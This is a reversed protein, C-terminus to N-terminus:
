TSKRKHAHTDTHPVEGVLTDLLTERNNVSCVFQEQLEAVRAEINSIEADDAGSRAAKRRAISLSAHLRDLEDQPNRLMEARVDTHTHTHIHSHTHTHALTHTHTLSHTHTHTHTHTLTHTHTHTHTRTCLHAHTQSDRASGGLSVQMANIALALGSIEVSTPQHTELAHRDESARQQHSVIRKMLRLAGEAAWDAAACWTEAAAQLSALPFPTRAAAATLGACEDALRAELEDLAAPLASDFEATACPALPTDPNVHITPTHTQDAAFAESTPEQESGSELQRRPATQSLALFQNAISHLVRAVDSAATDVAQALTHSNQLVQDHWTTAKVLAEAVLATAQVGTVLCPISAAETTERCTVSARSGARVKGGSSQLQDPEAKAPLSALIERLSKAAQAAAALRAPGLDLASTAELYQQRLLDRSSLLPTLSPHLSTSTQTIPERTSSEVATLPLDRPAATNSPAAAHHDRDVVLDSSGGDDAPRAASALCASRLAEQAADLECLLTDCQTVLREQERLTADDELPPLAALAQMLAVSSPGALLSLQPSTASPLSAETSIASEPQQGPRSARASHTAVAEEYLQRLRGLNRARRTADAATESLVRNEAALQEAV